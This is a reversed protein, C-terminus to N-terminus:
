DAASIVVDGLGYGCRSSLEGLVQRLYDTGPVGVAGGLGLPRPPPTFGNVDYLAGHTLRFSNITGTFQSSESGTGSGNLQNGFTIAAGALYAWSLD